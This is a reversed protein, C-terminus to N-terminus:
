DGPPSTTGKWDRGAIYHVHEFPEWRLVYGGHRYLIEVLVQRPTYAIARGYVDRIRVLPRQDKPYRKAMHPARAMQAELRADADLLPDPVLHPDDQIGM